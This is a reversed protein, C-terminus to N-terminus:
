ATRSRSTLTSICPRSFRSASGAARAREARARDARCVGGGDRAAAIAVGSTMTITAAGTTPAADITADLGMRAAEVGSGSAFAFGDHPLTSVNLRADRLPRAAVDWGIAPVEEIGPGIASAGFRAVQEHTADFTGDAREAHPISIAPHIDSM